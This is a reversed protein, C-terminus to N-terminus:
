PGERGSTPAQAQRRTLWEGFADDWSVIHRLFLERVLRLDEALSMHGELRPLLLSSFERQLVRHAEAHHEAEEYGHERMLREERLCHGSLYDMLCRALEADLRVDGPWQGCRERLGEFLTIIWDHEADVQPDRFPQM